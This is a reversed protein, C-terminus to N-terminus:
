KMEDSMKCKLEKIKEFLTRLKHYHLQNVPIIPKRTNCLQM